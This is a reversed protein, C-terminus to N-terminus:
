FVDCTCVSASLYDPLIVDVCTIMRTCIDPYVRCIHIGIWSAHMTHTHLYNVAKSLFSQKLQKIALAESTGKVHPTQNTKNIRRDCLLGAGAPLEYNVQCTSLPIDGKSNLVDISHVHQIYTYIITCIYTYIYICTYVYKYVNIYIYVHIYIYTYVYVHIYAYICIYM